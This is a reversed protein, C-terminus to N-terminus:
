CDGGDGGDIVEKPADGRCGVGAGDEPLVLKPLPLGDGGVLDILADAGQSLRKEAPARLFPSRMASMASFRQSHAMASKAASAMPAASTGM